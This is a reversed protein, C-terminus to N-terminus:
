RNSSLRERLNVLGRAVFKRYFKGQSQNYIEEASRTKSDWVSMEKEISDLASQLNEPAYTTGWNQSTCYDFAQIGRPAVFSAGCCLAECLTNPFGEQRSSYFILQASQNIKNLQDPPLHEHCQVQNEGLTVGNSALRSQVLRSGGGAIHWSIEPFKRRSVAIVKCLFEMNKQYRWWQGTSVISKSKESVPSWQFNESIAPPVIRLRAILDARGMKRFYNQFSKVSLDTEVMIHDIENFSKLLRQNVSRAMLCGALGRALGLGMGLSTGRMSCNRKRRQLDVYETLKASFYKKLGGAPGPVGDCDTRAWIKWDSKRAAQYIPLMNRTGYITLLIGNGQNTWWLPNTLDSQSVCHVEQTSLDTRDDLVIFDVDEGLQRLGNALAGIDRGQNDGWGLRYPM